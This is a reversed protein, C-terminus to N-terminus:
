RAHRLWTGGLLLAGGAAAAMVLNFWPTLCFYALLSLATVAAGLVTWRLGRWLGFLMYGGMALCTWFVEIAHGNPGILVTGVLGFALM